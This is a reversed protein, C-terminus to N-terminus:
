KVRKRYMKVVLLGILWLMVGVLSIVMAIMGLPAHYTVSFIHDGAEVFFAMFMYDATMPKVEEGDVTLVWGEMNPIALFIYGDKGANVQGSVTSGKPADVVIQADDSFKSDTDRGYFHISRVSMAPQGNVARIRIQRTNKPLKLTFKKEKNLLYEVARTDDLYVELDFREESTVTFEATMSAYDEYIGEAIPIVVEGAGDMAPGDELMHYQAMDLQETDIGKGIDRKQYAAIEKKSIQEAMRGTTLLVDTLLAGKDLKDAQKKYARQTLTGTYFKAINETQRNRYVYVTGEQHVLEYGDAAIKPSKSLVYKVGVLAALENDQIANRFQHHNLDYGTYLQPWLNAAFSRMQETQLSNYTSVGYYGQAMAELYYGSTSYDKEIRYFGDDQSRIWSLAAQTDGTYTDQFYAADSKQVTQRFRVCLGADSLVTAITLAGLAYVLMQRSMKKRAFAWLAWVMGLGGLLLLIANSQYIAAGYNRYAKGYVGIIVLASAALALRKVKGTELIKTLASASIIAFIPMFLFTHRMFAYAFGNFILSGVRVVVVFLMLAAGIWKGIRERLPMSETLMSWLYQALLIIFLVSFALEIAEYYNQYGVFDNGAGQLNNGFLRYLLTRYYEKDWLSFDALIKQVLPQGNLRASEQVTMLSPLLNAAGLLLGFAMSLAICVFHQFRYALRQEGAILTRVTVYIGVGLLVMYAQYYGNLLILGTIGAVGFLGRRGTLYKEIYYFLLPLWVLVSGLSYHQGWILLYGNFAYMYAALVKAEERYDFASLMRYAFLGALVIELIFIYVMSGAIHQPGFVAGIGYALWLFPAFLNLNYLSAGMGNYFDFSPLEGRRLHNAIGNYWMIYQQKTDSGVDSFVLLNDGFIYNHFVFACSVLLMAFLWLMAKKSVNTQQKM